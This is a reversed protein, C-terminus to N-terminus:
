QSSPLAATKMAKGEPTPDAPQHGMAGMALIALSTMTVDPRTTKEAIAGTDAQQAILYEAAKKLAADVRQKQPDQAHLTTSFTLAILIALRTMFYDGVKTPLITTFLIRAYNTFIRPMPVEVRNRNRAVHRSFDFVVKV